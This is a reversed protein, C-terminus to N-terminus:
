DSNTLIRLIKAVFTLCKSIKQRSKRQGRPSIHSIFIKQVLYSSNGATVTGHPKIFAPKLKSLQALTSDGRVGNDKMVPEDLGPVFVPVLDKLKGNTFAKHALQHSRM